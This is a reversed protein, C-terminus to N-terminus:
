ARTAMINTNNEMMKVMIEVVQPITKGQCFIAEPYGTRLNRHQDIKVFGLDTFPLEKLLIMAEEPTKQGEAVDKVIKELYQNDM